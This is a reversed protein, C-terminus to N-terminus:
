KLGVSTTGSQDCFVYGARDAYGLSDIWLPSLRRTSRIIALKNRAHPILAVAPIPTTVSHFSAAAHPTRARFQAGHFVLFVTRGEWTDASRWGYSFVAALQHDAEAKRLMV